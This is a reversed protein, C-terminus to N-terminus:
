ATQQELGAGPLTGNDLDNQIQTIAANFEEVAADAYPRTDYAEATGAVIPAALIAAAADADHTLKAAHILCADRWQELETPIDALTVAGTRLGTIIPLSEEEMDRILQDYQQYQEHREASGTYQALDWIQEVRDHIPLLAIGWERAQAERRATDERLYAAHRLSRQFAENDAQRAAAQRAADRAAQRRTAGTLRGVVAALRTLGRRNAIM